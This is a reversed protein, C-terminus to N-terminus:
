SEPCFLIKSAMHRDIAIKSGKVDLIVNGNAMSVAKVETGTTFGLESLFRKVEEKGSISTITGKEGVKAM